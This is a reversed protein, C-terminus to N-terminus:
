SIFALTNTTGSITTCNLQSKTTIPKKACLFGESDLAGCVRDNAKRAVAAGRGQRAVVIAAYRSIASNGRALEVHKLRAVTQPAVFPLAVQRYM